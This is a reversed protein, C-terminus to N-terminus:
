FNFQLRTSFMNLGAAEHNVLDNTNPTIKGQDTEIIHRYSWLLRVNKNLYWNLGATFSQEVGGPLEGPGSNGIQDQLIGQNVDLRDYRASLEWAGWGGNKLSFNTNPKLMKFEGSKIEYSAARSEGTLSWTAAVHFAEFSVNNGSDRYVTARTFEGYVSAPGAAVAFEPGWLVVGNVDEFRGSSVPRYDSMHTTESRVRFSENNTEPRRFAGRFGLHVASSDTIIPAFVLKGATGWGEVQNDGAPSVADGYIGAALFWNEGNADVRLGIARDLFTATLDNHLSREIFPMDNSSMEQSLSYPQKQQGATLTLGDFGTYSLMFDRIGTADDAFDVEGMWEFDEFVTVKTMLRARRLETGDTATVNSEDPGGGPINPPQDGVHVSADVHVRGGVQLKFQGDPSSVKFGGSDLSITPQEDEAFAAPVLALPSLLFGLSLAFPITTRSVVQSAYRGIPGVLNLHTSRAGM